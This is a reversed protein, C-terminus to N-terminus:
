KFAEIVENMKGCTLKGEPCYRNVFCSPGMNNFLQPFHGRLANLMNVTIKQIEWQARRCSRLKIYLMLERANMTTIINLMNGSLVFYYRYDNLPSDNDINRIIENSRVIAGRYIDALHNNESITKPIICENIMTSHIPPIVISQIRHRTIHTIGSLTIKTIFFSYSLQELERPRNSGLIRSIMDELNIEPMNQVLSLNNTQWAFKLDREPEKPCGYLEVNGIDSSDIFRSPLIPLGKVDLHETQVYFKYNSEIESILSPFIKNLQSVLQQAIDQLEPYSRGRGYKITCIIHILERANITCYFNSHFSYPLLFRADEKPVENDLLISYASFLIEMYKRYISLDDGSLGNPIKYGSKSFDVYRRSKVTFSAPRFEIIFQEVFASVNCFAITFVAHEIFSKHGSSLVKKILRENEDVTNERLFVDFANGKTTSIRAASACVKISDSNFSIIKVNEYQSLM